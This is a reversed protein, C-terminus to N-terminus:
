QPVHNKEKYFVYDFSVNFALSIRNEKSKNPMVHHKLWSPFMILLGEEVGSIISTPYQKSVFPFSSIFPVPTKFEIDGSGIPAKHYYVGSILNFAYGHDHIGILDSEDFKNIWSQDIQVSGPIYPQSTQKLFAETHALIMSKTLTMSKTEIINIEKGPIFTTNATDNNPQWQNDFVSSNIASEIEAFISGRNLINEFYLPIQFHNEIM